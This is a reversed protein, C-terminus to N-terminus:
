KHENSLVIGINYVVERIFKGGVEKFLPPTAGTM